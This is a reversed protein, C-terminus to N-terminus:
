DWMRLWRVRKELNMVVRIRHEWFRRQWVAREGKKICSISRQSQPEAPIIRPFVSKFLKWRISYNDDDESLTWIAHIHDPLFVMADIQIPYKSIMQRHAQRLEDVHQTLM